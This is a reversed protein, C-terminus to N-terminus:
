KITKPRLALAYGFGAAIAIPFAALYFYPSKPLKTIFNPYM